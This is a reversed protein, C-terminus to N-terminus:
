MLHSHFSGVVLVTPGECNKVIRALPGAPDAGVTERAIRWVRFSATAPRAALMATVGSLM